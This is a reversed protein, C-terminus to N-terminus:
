TLVFELMTSPIAAPATTTTTSATKKERPCAWLVLSDSTCNEWTTAAKELPLWSAARCIALLTCLSKEPECAATM